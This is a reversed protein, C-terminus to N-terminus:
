VFKVFGLLRVPRSAASGFGGWFGLLDKSEISDSPPNSTFGFTNGCNFSNILVPTRSGDFFRFAISENALYYADIRKVLKLNVRQRMSYNGPSAPSTKGFSQVAELKNQFPINYYIDLGVLKAAFNSASPSQCYFEISDIITSGEPSCRISSFLDVTPTSVPFTPKLDLASNAVFYFVSSKVFSHQDCSRSYIPEPSSALKKLKDLLGAPARNRNSGPALGNVGDDDGYANFILKLDGCQYAKELNTDKPVNLVRRVIAENPNLITKLFKVTGIGASNNDFMMGIFWSSSQNSVKFILKHITSFRNPIEMKNYYLYQIFTHQSNAKFYKKILSNAQHILLIPSGLSGIDSCGENTRRFLFDTPLNAAPSIPTSELIKIIQSIQTELSEDVSVCKGLTILLFTTLIAANKINM